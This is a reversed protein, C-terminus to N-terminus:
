ISKVRQYYIDHLEKAIVKPEKHSYKSLDISEFFTVKITKLMKSVGPIIRLYDLVSTNEIYIMILKTDTKKIGAIVYGIGSFWEDNKGGAGPFMAVLGGKNIKDWARAISERNLRKRNDEDFVPINHIRNVMQMKLRNSLKNREMPLHVPLLHKDLSPSIGKLLANGIIFIDNRPELVSGLVVLDSENPHNGIMLAPSSKLIKEIKSTKGEVQLRTGTKELFRRMASVLGQNGIKTDLRKTVRPLLKLRSLSLEM